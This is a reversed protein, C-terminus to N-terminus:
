PNMIVTVVWYFQTLFLQAKTWSDANQSPLQGLKQTTLAQNFCQFWQFQVWWFLSPENQGLFQLTKDRASSWDLQPSPKTTDSEMAGHGSIHLSPYGITGDYETFPSGLPQSNVLM